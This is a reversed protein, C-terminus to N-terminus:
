LYKDSSRSDPLDVLDFGFFGNPGRKEANEKEKKGGREKKKIKKPPVYCIVFGYDITSSAEYISTDM